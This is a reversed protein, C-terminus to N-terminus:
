VARRAASLVLPTRSSPAGKKAALRRSNLSPPAPRPALTRAVLASAAAFAMAGGTRKAGPALGPSSASIHMLGPNPCSYPTYPTM